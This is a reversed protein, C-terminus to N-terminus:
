HANEDGAVEAVDASDHHGNKLGRAMVDDPEVRVQVAPARKSVRRVHRIDRLNVGVEAIHAQLLEVPDLRDDMERGKGIIREAVEIGGQCIVDIM